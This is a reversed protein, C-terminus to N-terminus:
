VRHSFPFQHIKIEIVKLYKKPATVVTENELKRIGDFSLCQLELMSSFCSKSDSSHAQM